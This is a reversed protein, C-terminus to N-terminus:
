FLSLLGTKCQCDPFDKDLSLAYTDLASPIRSDTQRGNEAAEQQSAVRENVSNMLSDYVCAVYPELDM